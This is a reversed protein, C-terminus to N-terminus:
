FPRPDALIGLEDARALFPLWYRYFHPPADVATGLMDRQVFIRQMDAYGLDAYQPDGTQQSLYVLPEFFFDPEPEYYDRFPSSSKLTFGDPNFVGTWQIDDDVLQRLIKWSRESHTISHHRMLACSLIGDSLATAVQANGPPTYAVYFYGGDEARWADLWDMIAECTELYRPDRYNDYMRSLAMLPYGAVRTLTKVRHAGRDVANLFHEARALAVEEARRYGTLLYYFLPGEIWEHCLSPGLMAGHKAFHYRQGGIQWDQDADHITDVDIQHHIIPEIHEMVVGYGARVMQLILGYGKDMENNYWQGGRGTRWFDGYDFFSFGMLTDSQVNFTHKQLAARLIYEWWRYKEPQYRFLPGFAGSDVMWNRTAVQPAPEKEFGSTFSLREDRDPPGQRFDLLLEHTKAVGRYWELPGAWAPYLHLDVGEPTLDIQKPANHWFRRCWFSVTARDDGLVAAAPMLTHWDAGPRLTSEASDDGPLVSYQPNARRPQEHTEAEMDRTAPEWPPFPMDVLDVRLSRRSDILDDVFPKRHGTATSSVLFGDRPERLQPRLRIQWDELHVLRQPVRNTLTLYIKLTSHGAWAYIRATADLSPQGDKSLARGEIKVVARLPGAEELIPPEAPRLM